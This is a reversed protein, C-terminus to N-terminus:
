PEQTPASAPARPRLKKLQQSEPRTAYFKDLPYCGSPLGNRPASTCDSFTRCISRTELCGRELADAFLAPYALVMRGIGILDAWGNRLVYQAVHPLYEQLYSYATGVLLLGKPARAKLQRVANIQRAVGM